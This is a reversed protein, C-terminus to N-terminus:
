SEAGAEILLNVIQPMQADVAYSLASGRANDRANVDAGELILMEAFESKREAIAYILPTYGEVTKGDIDAGAELLAKGLFVNGKAAALHLATVGKINSPAAAAGADLLLKGIVLNSNRAAMMLPTDGTDSAKNISSKNRELLLKVIEPQGFQCAYHLMTFGDIDTDDTDTGMLPLFVKVLQQQRAAIAYM